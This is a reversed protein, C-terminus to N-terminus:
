RHVGDVPSDPEVAHRLICEGNLRQSWICVEVGFPRLDISIYRPSSKDTRPLSPYKGLDFLGVVAAIKIGWHFDEDIGVPIEGELDVVSIPGIACCDGFVSM